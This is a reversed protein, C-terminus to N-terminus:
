QESLFSQDINREIIMIGHSPISTNGNGDKITVQYLYKGALHITDSPVLTFSAECAKGSANATVAVQKSFVPSSNRNVFDVVALSATGNPIDYEYGSPKQITFTRKQTEGGVFDWEPLATLKTQM